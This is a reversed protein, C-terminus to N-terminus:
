LFGERPKTLISDFQPGLQGLAQEMTQEGKYAPVFGTRILNDVEAWRLNAPQHWPAAGEILDVWVAHSKMDSMLKPHRLVSKRLGPRSAGSLVAPLQTEPEMIFKLFKWAADPAKSGSWISMGNITLQTGIKGTSGKPVLVMGWKFRGQIRQEGPSFQGGYSQQWMALRGQVFLDAAPVPGGIPVALRHRVWLDRYYNLAALAVPASLTMKKGETDLIDGGNGRIIPTYGLYDTNPQFGYVDTQPDGSVKAVVRSVELLKDWTWTADPIKQGARTILDENYLLGTYGPHGGWPM